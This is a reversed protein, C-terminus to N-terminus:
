VGPSAPLASVTAGRATTHQRPLTMLAFRLPEPRVEGGVLSGGSIVSSHIAPASIYRPSFSTRRPRGFSCCGRLSSDRRKGGSTIALHFAVPGPQCVRM